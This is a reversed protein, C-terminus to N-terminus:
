VSVGPGLSELLDKLAQLEHQYLIWYRKGGFEVKIPGDKVREM